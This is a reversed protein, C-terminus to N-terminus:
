SNSLRMELYKNRFGQREYLRRAPNDPEVHLKIDGDCREKVMKILHAGIGRGRLAPAVAIFLLLNEPVYGSMGTRLMVVAGALQDNEIALSIFGGYGPRDSLAYELGRRVDRVPDQYPVMVENLFVALKETTLWEPLDGPNKVLVYRM